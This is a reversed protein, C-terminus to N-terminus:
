NCMNSGTCMNTCDASSACGVGAGCDGGSQTTSCDASCTGCADTNNDDCTELEPCVDGDGCTAGSGAGSCDDNCTGCADTYGDDCSESGAMIGDGCTTDCTSPEGSCSWGTEETCSSSCGDGGSTDGDDCEEGGDLMGNGCDATCMSPEGTCTYGAEETCSGSCGDGGSTDGDDCGEGGVIRGDGCDESCSSPEGSCSWGTEETCSGSCGDGGSTDGDDCGEGGVVRGDGCDESCSSPEGSCSWGTEEDCSGSCGDGGSTDGDDCQEDSAILGDGCVSVCNRDVCVEAGDCTRGCSGCNDEDRRLNAECGNTYAGDCDRWPDTCSDIGCTRMVCEEVANPASCSTTCSGCTAPDGELDAECGDNDPETLLDGNCDRWDRGAETVCECRRDVCESSPGCVFDCIDCHSDNSTVDVCTEGGEPGCCQQTENERASPEPADDPEPCAQPSVDSSGGTADGCRCEGGVCTEGFGCRRGCGGCNNPDTMTDVCGGNMCCTTGGGCPGTMSDDFVCDCTGGVCETATELSCTARCGGCHEFVTSFFDVPSGDICGMTPPMDMDYVEDVVGDCDDDVGNCTEPIEPGISADDECQPPEVYGDGDLDLACDRDEGPICSAAVGDGCRDIVPEDPAHVYALPDSDDCDMPPSQGDGDMDDAPDPCGEDVAMDCDDDFGNACVERSDPGGFIGPDCDNCDCTSPDTEGPECADAPDGDFNAPLCEPVEDVLMNCNNDKGDCVGGPTEPAMPYVTPDTDDCDPLGDRDAFIGDGDQDCPSDMGDCDQDIGDNCTAEEDETDRITEIADPNVEPAGDDCDCDGVPDPPCAEWGDMDNDECSADAGSCDEDLRNRCQDNAGPYFDDRTDDCDGGGGPEGSCVFDLEDCPRSGGDEDPELCGALPDALFGDGDGDLASIDALMVEDELIGDVGYCRTAYLPQDDATRARIHVAVLAPGELDVAIRIPDEGRLEEPTRPPSYRQASETHTPREQDLSILVVEIESVPQESFVDILVLHQADQCGSVVFAALVTSAALRTLFRPIRQM